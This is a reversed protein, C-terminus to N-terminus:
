RAILVSARSHDLVRASVSGLLLRAVAGHGLAGLVVLDAEHADALKLIEAAAHGLRPAEIVPYGAKVLTDAVVRVLGTGVAKVEPYKLRP